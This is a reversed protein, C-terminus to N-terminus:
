FGTHTLKISLYGTVCLTWHSSYPQHDLSCILFCVPLHSFSSIEFWAFSKLFPFPRLSSRSNTISLSAQRAAIWPTAFLTPCSQAVLQVSSFQILEDETARKGEHGWVKGADTDKAILWSKVNPPWFIPVEDDTRGTFKWPQNGKPNVLQIEKSELPSELARELVVISFCRNKPMCGKTNDLEWM